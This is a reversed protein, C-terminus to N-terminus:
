NIDLGKRHNIISNIVDTRYSKGVPIEHKGLLYVSHKDFATIYNLNIICSRHCQVFDPTLFDKVIQSFARNTLDLTINSGDTMLVDARHEATRAQVYIVKDLDVVENQFVGPLVTTNRARLLPSHYIRSLADHVKKEQLPKLLYRFTSIEFANEMFERSNSTFIIIARPNKLHIREAFTFGTNSSEQTMIDLFFIDSYVIEEFTFILDSISSFKRVVIDIGNEAKKWSKIMQVLNELDTINDDFVIIKM